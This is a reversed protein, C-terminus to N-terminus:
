ARSKRRRSAAVSLPGPLACLAAIGAASAFLLRGLNRRGRPLPSGTGKSKRTGELAAAFPPRVLRTGLVRAARPIAGIRSEPWPHGTLRVRGGTAFRERLSRRPASPAKEKTVKKQALLLFYGAALIASSLVCPRSDTKAVGGFVSGLASVM